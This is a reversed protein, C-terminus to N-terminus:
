GGLRRPQRRVDDEAVREALDLADRDVGVDLAERVPESEAVLGIGVLDLQVQHAENGPRLPEAERVDEDVV